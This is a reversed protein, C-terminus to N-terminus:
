DWDKRSNKFRRLLTSYVFTFLPPLLADGQKLFNQISLVNSFRERTEIKINM